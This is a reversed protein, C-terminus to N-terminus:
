RLEVVEQARDLNPRTAEGSSLRGCWKIGDKVFVAKHVAGLLGRNLFRALAEKLRCLLEDVNRAWIVVGNVWLLRTRGILNNLM